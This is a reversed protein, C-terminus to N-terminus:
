RERMWIEHACELDRVHLELFEFGVMGTVTRLILATLRAIIVRDFGDGPALCLFIAAPERGPFATMVAQGGLGLPFVGASGARFRSQIPAVFEPVAVLGVGAAFHSPSPCPRTQIERVG